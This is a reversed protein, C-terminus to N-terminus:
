AGGNRDKRDPRWVGSQEEVGVQRFAYNYTKVGGYRRNEANKEGDSECRGQILSQELSKELTIV